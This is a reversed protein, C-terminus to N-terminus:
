KSYVMGSDNLVNKSFIIKSSGIFLINGKLTHATEIGKNSKGNQVNYRRVTYLNDEIHKVELYDVNNPVLQGKHPGFMFRAESNHHWTGVLQSSQVLEQASSTFSVIAFLLAFLRKKSIM